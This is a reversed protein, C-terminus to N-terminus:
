VFRQYNKNGLLLQIINFPRILSQYNADYSRLVFSKFNHNIAPLVRSEPQGWQQMYVVDKKDTQRAYFGIKNPFPLKSFREAENESHITMKIFFDNINFRQLRTEWKEKADSFSSSHNFRIVINNTKGELLGTPCDPFDYLCRLPAQLYHEINSLLYFYDEAQISCLIFPSFFPLGLYNYVYAGWCDDSIISIKRRYLETYEIFNFGPTFLVRSKIVQNPFIANAKEFSEDSTTVIFDFSMELLDKPSVIPFGDIHSSLICGDHVVSIVEISGKQIEALVINLIRDYENNLGWLIIKIM